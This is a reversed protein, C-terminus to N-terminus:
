RPKPRHPGAPVNEGHTYVDDTLTEIGGMPPFNRLSQEEVPRRSAPEVEQSEACGRCLEAEPAARLRGEPILDGCSLCYGYTGRRVRDLALDIKARDIELGDKLGLDKGREFTEAALDASHQDYTSMEGSSDKLGESFTGEKIRHFGDSVSKRQRLLIREFEPLDIDTRPSRSAGSGQAMSIGGQSVEREKVDQTRM